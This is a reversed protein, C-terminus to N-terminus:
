GGLDPRPLRYTDSRKKDSQPRNEDQQWTSIAYGLAVELTEPDLFLCDITGFRIEIGGQVRMQEAPPLRLPGSGTLFWTGNTSSADQIKWLGPNAKSATLYAHVKSVTPHDFRIDNNRARGVTISDFPNRRSKVVPVLVSTPTVYSNLAEKGLVVATTDLVADDEEPPKPTQFMFASDEHEGAAKVLLLPADGWLKRAGFDKIAAVDRLLM